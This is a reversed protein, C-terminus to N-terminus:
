LGLYSLIIKPLAGIIELLVIFVPILMYWAWHHKYKTSLGVTINKWVAKIREKYHWIILIDLLLYFSLRWTFAKAFMLPMFTLDIILIAIVLPLFMFAGILATRNILLLIGTIMQFIGIAFKFPQHDFMFWSIRFLSLDKIPTNLEQETIGFQGETLKDYGYSIFILGILYRAILIFYDWAKNKTM